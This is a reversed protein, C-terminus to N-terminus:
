SQEGKMRLFSFINQLTINEGKRKLKNINSTTIRFPATALTGTPLQAENQVM